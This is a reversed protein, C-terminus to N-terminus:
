QVWNEPEAIAGLEKQGLHHTQHFGLHTHSLIFFLFFLFITWFLLFFFFFCVVLSIHRMLKYLGFLRVLTVDSGNKSKSLLPQKEKPHRTWPFLCSFQIHIRPKKRQIILIILYTWIFYTCVFYIYIYIHGFLGFCLLSLSSQNPMM